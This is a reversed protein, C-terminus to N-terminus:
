LSLSCTSSSGQKRFLPFKDPQPSFNQQGPHPEKQMKPASEVELKSSLSLRAARKEQAGGGAKECLVTAKSSFRETVLVLVAWRSVRCPAFLMVARM